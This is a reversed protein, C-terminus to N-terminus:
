WKEKEAELAHYLLTLEMALNKLFEQQPSKEIWENPIFNIAILQKEYPTRVVKNFSYNTQISQRQNEEVLLLDDRSSNEQNREGLEGLYSYITDQHDNQQMELVRNRPQVKAPKNIKPAEKDKEKEREKDTKDHKLKLHSELDAQKPYAKSCIPCQHETSIKEETKIKEKEQSETFTVEKQM